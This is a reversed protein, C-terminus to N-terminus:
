GLGDTRTAPDQEDTAAFCGTAGIWLWDGDDAQIESGSASM